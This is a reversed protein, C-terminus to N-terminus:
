LAFCEEIDGTTGGQQRGGSGPQGYNYVDVEYHLVSKLTERLEEKSETVVALNDTTTCADVEYHLVNKLTERLEEKSDAVM